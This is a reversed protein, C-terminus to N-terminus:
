TVATNTSYDLQRFSKTHFTPVSAMIHLAAHCRHLLDHETLPEPCKKDMITPKLFHGTARGM